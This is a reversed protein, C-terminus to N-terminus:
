DPQELTRLVVLGDDLTGAEGRDLGLVLGFTIILVVRVVRVAILVVIILLVVIFLDPAARMCCTSSRAFANPTSRSTMGPIGGSAAPAPNTLFSRCRGTCRRRFHTRMAGTM